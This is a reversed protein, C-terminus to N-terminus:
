RDSGVERFEGEVTAEDEQREGTAAGDTNGNPGFGPQGEGDPDGPQAGTAEYMQTGVQTLTQVLEEHAPRLADINERDNELINKVAQVKGDLDAKLEPSIREGYESLTQ